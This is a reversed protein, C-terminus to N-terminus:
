ANDDGSQDRPGSTLHDDSKLFEFHPSSVKWGVLAGSCLSIQEKIQVLADWEREIANVDVGSENKIEVENYLSPDSAEDWKKRKKKSHLGEEVDVSTVLMNSPLNQRESPPILRPLVRAIPTEEVAPFTFVIKEPVNQGMAGKFGRRKNKNSLSSMAFETTGDTHQTEAVVDTKVPVTGIPIANVGAARDQPIDDIEM